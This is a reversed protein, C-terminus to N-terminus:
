ALFSLSAQYVELKEHDSSRNRLHVAVIIVALIAVVITIAEALFLGYHLFFDSM